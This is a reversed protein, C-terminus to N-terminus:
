IADSEVMDKLCLKAQEAADRPPRNSTTSPKLTEEKTSKDEASVELPYLKRIPRKLCNGNSTKVMVSRTLGDQAPFLEKIVDLKWQNRTYNDHVLVVDGVHPPREPLLRKPLKYERLSTLYEKRWTVWFRDM